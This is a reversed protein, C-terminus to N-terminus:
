QAWIQRKHYTVYNSDYLIHSKWLSSPLVCNLNHWTKRTVQFWMEVVLFRRTHSCWLSHVCEDVSPCRTVELSPCNNLFSGYVNHTPKRDKGWTILNCSQPNFQPDRSHWALERGSFWMGLYLHLSRCPCWNQLSGDLQRKLWNILRYELSCHIPTRM